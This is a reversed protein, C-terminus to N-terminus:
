GAAVTADGKELAEILAPPTLLRVPIWPYQKLLERSVYGWRLLSIAVLVHVEREEVGAHLEAALAIADADDTQNKAHLKMELAADCLVQGAILPTPM